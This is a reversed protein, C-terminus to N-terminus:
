YQNLVQYGCKSRKQLNGVLHHTCNANYVRYIYKTYISNKKFAIYTNEISRVIMIYAEKSPWETLSVVVHINLVVVHTNLIVIHMDLLVIFAYKFCYSNLTYRAFIQFEYKHSQCWSSGAYFRYIFGHGFSM